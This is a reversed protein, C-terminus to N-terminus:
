NWRRADASPVPPPSVIGIRLAKVGHVWPAWELATRTRAADEAHADMDQWRVHEVSFAQLCLEQLSGSAAIDGIPRWVDDVTPLYVPSAVLRWWAPACGCGWVAEADIAFSRVRPLQTLIYEWQEPSILACAARWATREAAMGSRHVSEPAPCPYPLGPAVAPPPCHGAPPSPFHLILTHVYHRYEPHAVVQHIRAVHTPWPVIHLTRFLPARTQAALRSSTLSLSKITPNSLYTCLHAILEAPLSTLRPNAAELACHSSTLTAM